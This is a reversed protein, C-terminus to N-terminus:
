EIRNRSAVEQLLTQNEVFINLLDAQYETDDRLFQVNLDYQAPLHKTLTRFTIHDAMARMLDAYMKFERAFFTSRLLQMQEPAAIFKIQLQSDALALVVMQSRAYVTSMDDAKKAWGRFTAITTLLGMSTSLVFIVLDFALIEAPHLASLDVAAAETVNLLLALTSHQTDEQFAAYMVRFGTILAILASGIFVLIQVNRFRSKYVSLKTQLVDTRLKLLAILNDIFSGFDAKQAQVERSITEATYAEQAYMQRGIEADAAAACAPLFARDEPVAVHVDVLQPRESSNVSDHTASRTTDTRVSRESGAVAHATESESPSDGVGEDVFADQRRQQVPGQGLRQAQVRKETLGPVDTNTQRGFHEVLRAPFAPVTTGTFPSSIPPVRRGGGSLTRPSSPASLVAGVVAQDAPRFMRLRGVGGVGTGPITGPRAGLGVNVDAGSATTAAHSARDRSLMMKEYLIQSALQTELESSPVLSSSPAPRTPQVVPRRSNGSKDQWQLLGHRWDNGRGEQGRGRGGREEEEEDDDGYGDRESDHEGYPETEGLPLSRRVRPWSSKNAKAEEDEEEEEEEGEPEDERDDEEEEGDAREQDEEHVNEQRHLTQNEQAATERGRM